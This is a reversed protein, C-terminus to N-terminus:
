VVQESKAKKYLLALLTNTKKIATGYIHEEEPSCSISWGDIGRHLRVGTVQLSLIPRTQRTGKAMANYFM